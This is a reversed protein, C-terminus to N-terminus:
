VVVARVCRGSSYVADTSYLVGHQVAVCRCSSASVVEGYVLRVQGNNNEYLGECDTFVFNLEFAEDPVKLRAWWFDSGDRPMPAPSLEATFNMGNNNLQWQNFAYQIQLRPRVRHVCVHAYVCYM